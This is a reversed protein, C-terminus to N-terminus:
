IKFKLSLILQNDQYVPGLAAGSSAQDTHQYTLSVGAHRDILYTATVSLNLTRDHRDSALYQDTEFGARGTVIVNRRAEYDVQAGAESAM